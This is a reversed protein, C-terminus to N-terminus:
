EWSNNITRIINIVQEKYNLSNSWNSRRRVSDSSDHLQMPLNMEDFKNMVRKLEDEKTYLIYEGSGALKFVKDGKKRKAIVEDINNCGIIEIEEDFFWTIARKIVRKIKYKYYM